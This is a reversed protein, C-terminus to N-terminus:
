VLVAIAAAVILLLVLTDRLQRVFRRWPPPPKRQKLKNPGYQQLRARAEEATLGHRCDSRLRGATEDSGIRYFKETLLPRSGVGSPCTASNTNPMVTMCGLAIAKGGTLRLFLYTTNPHSRTKVRMICAVKPAARAVPREPRRWDTRNSLPETCNQPPSHHKLQFPNENRCIEVLPGGTHSLVGSRQSRLRVGSHCDGGLVRARVERRHSRRRTVASSHDQAKSPIFHPEVCRFFLDFLEHVRVERFYECHRADSHTISRLGNHLLCVPCLSVDDYHGSGPEAAKSTHKETRSGRFNQKISGTGAKRTCM